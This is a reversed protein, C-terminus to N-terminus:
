NANGSLEIDDIVYIYGVLQNTELSGDIPEEKEISFVEMQRENCLVIEFITQMIMSFSFCDIAFLLFRFFLLSEIQIAAKKEAVIQQPPAWGVAGKAYVNIDHKKNRICFSYIDWLVCSPMNIAMMM